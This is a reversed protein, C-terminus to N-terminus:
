SGVKASVFILEYTAPIMGNLRYREYSEIMRQMSSKSTTQRNRGALVNHAGIGKLERMLDLVTQYNSQYHKSEIQIDEFGAQQLFVLLEEASYFDNVHTYKDVEAWAQKLEQLTAPGFTSFVLRGEKKLVQNFGVFVDVLNQCWQLAVNSVIKDVSQKQLPLSEADACIAQVADVAQLKSKTMQVMSLAIDIAIMQKVDSRSMLEQTLFGTGCGVDVVTHDVHNIAFKALLDLGVERQLTALGDYTNAASAFSHRVKNKDISIVASM